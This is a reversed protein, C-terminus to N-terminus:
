EEYNVGLVDQIASAVSAKFEKADQEQIEEHNETLNAENVTQTYNHNITINGKATFFGAIGGILFIIIYLM